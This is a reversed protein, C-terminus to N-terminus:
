RRLVNATSWRAVLTSPSYLGHRRKGPHPGDTLPPRYLHNFAVSIAMHTLLHISLHLLDDDKPLIRKRADGRLLGAMMDPFACALVVSGWPHQKAQRLLITSKEQGLLLQAALLWCGTTLRADQFSLAIFVLFIGTVAYPDEDAFPRDRHCGRPWICSCFGAFNRVVQDGIGVLLAPTDIRVENSSYVWSGYHYM